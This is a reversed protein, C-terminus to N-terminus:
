RLSLKLVIDLEEDTLATQHKKPDEFYRGLLEIVGNSKVNFDKAVEHVRYKNVQAM